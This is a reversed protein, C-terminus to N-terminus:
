RSLRRLSPSGTGRSAFSVASGTLSFILIGIGAHARAQGRRFGPFYQPRESSCAKVHMMGGSAMVDQFMRFTRLKTNGDRIVVFIEFAPSESRYEVLGPERHLLKEFQELKAAEDLAARCARRIARTGWLATGENLNKEGSCRHISNGEAQLKGATAPKGGRGGHM